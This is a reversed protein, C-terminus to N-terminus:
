LYEQLEKIFDDLIRKEEKTIGNCALALEEVISQFEQYGEFYGYAKFTRIANNYAEEISHTSNVHSKFTAIIDFAYSHHSVLQMLLKKEEDQISGDASAVAYLLEGFANFLEEKEIAM